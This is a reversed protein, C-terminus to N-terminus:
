GRFSRNMPGPPRGASVIAAHIQVSFQGSEIRSRVEPTPDGAGNLLQKVLACLSAPIRETSRAFRAAIGFEMRGLGLDLGQRQFQRV